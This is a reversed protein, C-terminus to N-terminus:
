ATVAFPRSYDAASGTEVAVELAYSAGPPVLPLTVLAEGQAGAGARPAVLAVRESDESGTRTTLWVDVDEGTNNTWAVSFSGNVRFSLGEIPATVEIRDAERPTPATTPAPAATTAPEPDGGLASTAARAASGNRGPAGAHGPTATHDASAGKQGGGQSPAVAFVLWCGAATAAITIAVDRTMSAARRMTKENGRPSPRASVDGTVKIMLFPM